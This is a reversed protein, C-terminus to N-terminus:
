VYNLIGRKGPQGDAAPNKSTNLIRGTLLSTKRGLTSTQPVLKPKRYLASIFVTVSVIYIFNSPLLLLLLLLMILM